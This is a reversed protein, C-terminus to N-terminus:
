KKKMKMCQEFYEKSVIEYDERMEPCGLPCCCKKEDKTECNCKCNCQNGSSQTNIQYNSMNEKASKEVIYTDNNYQQLNIQTNTSQNILQTEQVDYFRVPIAEILKYLQRKQGQNINLSNNGIIKANILKANYFGQNKPINEDQTAIYYNYNTEQQPIQQINTNQTQINVQDNETTIQEQQIQPQINEQNINDKIIFVTGDNLTFYAVQKPDIQKAETKSIQRVQGEESM